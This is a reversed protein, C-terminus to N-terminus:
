RLIERWKEQPVDTWTKEFRNRAAVRLPELSEKELVVTLRRWLGTAELLYTQPTTAVKWHHWRKLGPHAALLPAFRSDTKIMAPPEKCAPCRDNTVAAQSVHCLCTPCKTMAEHLVLKETVPCTELLEPSVRKGTASCTVLEGDLMRRGTQQCTAIEEAAVIRGDDTSTLNFTPRHSYSCVFKPPTLQIAWDAFPLEVFQEGINFRLKGAAWRCWM